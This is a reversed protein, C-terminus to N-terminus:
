RILGLRMAEGVAAARDSVGLRAYAREFHRKITSPSLHLESAISEIARGELALQLVQIERGSLIPESLEGRHRALFYGIEHGIGYLLRLLGETEPVPDAGLFELVALTEEEFVAPIAVAAELGADRLAAGRERPGSSPPDTSIVPQRTAYARGIIPSGLGPRWRRNTDAIRDMGPAPSCWVARAAFSGCDAAWLTGLRFNMTTGIGHLLAETSEAFTPRSGLAVTVTSRVAIERELRRQVTVDQVSGILRLSGPGADEVAAVTARLVRMVGDEAHIRYEVERTEGAAFAELTARVEERDEEHVRGLVYEPSPEIAGPRLGLLQYLNSSWLLEGTTPTWEWSGLGGIREAHDVLTLSRAILAGSSM